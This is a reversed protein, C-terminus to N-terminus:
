GASAATDKRSTPANTKSKREDSIPQLVKKVRAILAQAAHSDIKETHRKEVLFALAMDNELDNLLDM